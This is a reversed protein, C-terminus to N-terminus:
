LEPTIWQHHNFTWNILAISDGFRDLSGLVVIVVKHDGREIYSVLCQGANDTFGTKLGKLGEIQGLLQNTTDLKHVITGNVDTVTISQIQVIRSIEQNQLAYAALVALDRATTVHGNQEVGSPNKFTTYDLHLTKAKDNMAQVFATYGGPYNEALALAADNGSHVLLGYLINQVTIQEGHKLNITQGIAHDENKVTIVTGLDKWNDLAVLATMLKTISAPLMPTDPNKSFLITKGVLDQIVVARASTGPAHVGDSQPYPALSPLAPITYARVTGPHIVLSQLSNEGPYLFTVLLLSCALLQRSFNLKKLSVIFENLLDLKWM